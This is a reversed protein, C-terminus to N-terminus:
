LYIPSASTGSFRTGVIIPDIAYDCAINFLQKDRNDRRWIHWTACHLVEHIILGRLLSDNMSEVYAPNYFLHKGDTAATQMWWAVQPKLRLVLSAFFCLSPRLVIAQNQKKIRALASKEMAKAQEPTLITIKPQNM